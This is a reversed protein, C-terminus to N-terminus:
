FHSRRCPVVHRGSILAPDLPKGCVSCPPQQGTASASTSPVAIPDHKAALQASRLPPEPAGRRQDRELLEHKKRLLELIRERRELRAFEQELTLKEREPAKPQFGPQISKQKRRLVVAAAAAINEAKEAEETLRRSEQALPGIIASTIGNPSVRASALDGVVLSYERGNALSRQGSEITAAIGLQETEPNLFTVRLGAQQVEDQVDDLRYPGDAHRGPSKRVRTHGWLWVDIIGQRAYSEHRERWAEVSLPACQVEFAVRPKGPHLLMVDAVNSRQTDTAYEVIVTAEPYTANLWAAVVAKGQRHNVSEPSHKGAGAGHTFGDRRNARSVTTLDPAPCDEFMCRLERKAWGRRERAEGDPLVYLEGARAPDRYAAAILRTEGAGLFREIDERTHMATSAM